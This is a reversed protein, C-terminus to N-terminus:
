AITVGEVQLVTMSPLRERVLVADEPTACVGKLAMSELACGSRELFVGLDAHPFDTTDPALERDLRRVEDPTACRFHAHQLRPAILVRLLRGLVTRAPVAVVTLYELQRLTTTEPGPGSRTDTADCLGIILVKLSACSSLARQALDLATWSAELRVLTRGPVHQMATGYLYYGLDVIDQKWYRLHPAYDRLFELHYDSAAVIAGAHPDDVLEATQLAELTPIVVCEASRDITQMRFQFLSSFYRTSTCCFRARHCRRTVADIFAVEPLVSFAKSGYDESITCPGRLDIAFPLPHSRTLYAVLAVKFLLLQEVTPKKPLMNIDDTHLKILAPAWLQKDHEAIVRWRHCVHSIAVATLMPKSLPYTFVVGACALRFIKELLEDPLLRVPAAIARQQTAFDLLRQRHASLEQALSLLRDIESTLAHAQQEADVARAQYHDDPFDGLSANSKRIAEITDQSPSFPHGTCSVCRQCGPCLSTLMETRM